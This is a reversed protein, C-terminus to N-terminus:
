PCTVAHTWQRCPPLFVKFLTQMGDDVLLQDGASKFLRHGPGARWALELWRSLAHLAANTVARTSDGKIARLLAVVIDRKMLVAAASADMALQQSLAIAWKQVEACDQQVASPVFPTVKQKDLTKARAETDDQILSSLCYCVMAKVTPDNTVILSGLKGIVKSRDLAIWLATARTRDSAAVDGLIQVLVARVQDEAEDATSATTRMTPLAALAICGWLGGDYLQSGYPCQELLIKLSKLAALQVGAVLLRVKEAISNADQPRYAQTSAEEEWSHLLSRDVALSRSCFHQLITAGKLFGASDASDFLVRTLLTLLSVTVRTVPAFGGDSSLLSGIDAVSIHGVVVNPSLGDYRCCELLLALIMIFLDPDSRAPRGNRVFTALIPILCKDTMLQTCVEEHLQKGEKPVIIHELLVLVPQVAVPTQANALLVACGTIINTQLLRRQRDRDGELWAQNLAAFARERLVNSSASLSNVLAAFWGAEQLADLNAQISTCKVFAGDTVTWLELLVDAQLSENANDFMHLVRVAAETEWLVARTAPHCALESICRLAMRAIEPQAADPTLLAYLRELNGDRIFEEASNIDSARAVLIRIADGELRDNRDIQGTTSRILLELCSAVVNQAM